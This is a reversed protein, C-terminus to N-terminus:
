GCRGNSWSWCPWVKRAQRTLSKNGRFFRSSVEYPGGRLRNSGSGVAEGSKGGKVKATTRWRRWTCPRVPDPQFEVGNPVGNFWFRGCQLYEVAFLHLLVENQAECNSVHPGRFCEGLPDVGCRTIELCSGHLHDPGNPFWWIFATSARPVISGKGMADHYLPNWSTAVAVPVSSTLFASEIRVWHAVTCPVRGALRNTLRSALRSM